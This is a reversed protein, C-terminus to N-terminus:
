LFKKSKLNIEKNMENIKKFPIISFTFTKIKKDPSLKFILESKRFLNSLLVKKYFIIKEM